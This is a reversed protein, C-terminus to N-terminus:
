LDVAHLRDEDLLYVLPLVDGAGRVDGDGVILVARSDRSWGCQFSTGSGPDAETIIAIGRSHNTALARIHLSHRPGDTFQDIEYRGDPSRTATVINRADEDYRGDLLAEGVHPDVFHADIRVAEIIGSLVSYAVLLVLPSVVFLLVLVVNRRNPSAARSEVTEASV